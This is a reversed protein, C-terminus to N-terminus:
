SIGMRSEGRMNKGQHFEGIKAPNRELLQCKASRIQRPGQGEEVDQSRGPDVLSQHRYIGHKKQTKEGMFTM